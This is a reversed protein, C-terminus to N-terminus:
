FNYRASLWIRYKDNTGDSDNGNGDQAENSSLKKGVEMKTGFGNQHDYAVGVGIGNLSINKPLTSTDTLWTQHNRKVWGYDYFVSATFNNPLKQKLDINYFYGDDGSIESNPYARISSPGGLSIKDGSNLNDFAKQGNFNFSLSLQNDIKQDRTFSLEMKSFSGDTGASLSDATKEASNKINLSGKTYSLNISNNGGKFFNDENAINVSTKFLKTEKNSTETGKTTSSSNKIDYNIL